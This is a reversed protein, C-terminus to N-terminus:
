ITIKRLLIKEHTSFFHIKFSHKSLFKFYPAHYFTCFFSLKIKISYTLVLVSCNTLNFFFNTLQFQFKQCTESKFNNWVLLGIQQKHLVLVKKIEVICIVKCIIKFTNSHVMQNAVSNYDVCLFSIQHHFMKGSFWFYKDM